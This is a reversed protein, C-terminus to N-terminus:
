IEKGNIFNKDYRLEGNSWYNQCKGHLEGNLYNWDFAIQRNDHYMKFNGNSKNNVYNSFLMPKNDKYGILEGQKLGNIIKYKLYDPM